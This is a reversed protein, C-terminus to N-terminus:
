KRLQPAREYTHMMIRIAVCHMHEGDNHNDRMAVCTRIFLISHITYHLRCPNSLTRLLPQEAPCAHVHQISINYQAPFLHDLWSLWTGHLAVRAKLGPTLPSQGQAAQEKPTQTRTAQAISYVVSTSDVRVLM